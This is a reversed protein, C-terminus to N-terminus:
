IAPTEPEERDLAEAVTHHVRFRETLRTIKLVELVGSRPSVLALGGGASEATRLLGVLTGLGTSDILTVESLDLVIHRRASAGLAANVGANFEDISFMSIEGQAAIVLNNATEQYTVVM